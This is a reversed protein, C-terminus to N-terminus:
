KKNGKNIQLQKVSQIFNFDEEVEFEDIKFNFNDEFFTFFSHKSIKSRYSPKFIKSALYEKSTKRKQPNKQLMSKM